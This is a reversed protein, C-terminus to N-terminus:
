AEGEQPGPRGGTIVDAAIREMRVKSGSGADASSSVGVLAGGGSVAAPVRHAGSKHLPARPNAHLNRTSTWDPRDILVLVM